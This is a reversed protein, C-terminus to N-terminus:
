RTPSARNGSADPDVWLSFDWNGSRDAGVQRGVGTYSQNAFDYALRMANDGSGVSGGVAARELTITNANYQVYEARLATDDGYGEFDDMVGPPFVPEPGLVVASPATM